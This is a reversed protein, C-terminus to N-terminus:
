LLPGNGTPIVIVPRNSKRDDDDVLYSNSNKCCCWVAPEPKPTVFNMFSQLFMVAFFANQIQALFLTIGIWIESCMGWYTKESPDQLNSYQVFHNTYFAGCQGQLRHTHIFFTEHNCM